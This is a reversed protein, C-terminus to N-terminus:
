SEVHAVRGIMTKGLFPFRPKRLFASKSVKRHEISTSSWNSALQIGNQKGFDEWFGDVHLGWSAGLLADMKAENKSGLFRGRPVWSPCMKARLKADLRGM